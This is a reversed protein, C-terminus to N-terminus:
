KVSAEQSVRTYTSRSDNPSLTIRTLEVFWMSPGLESKALATPLWLVVDFDPLPADYAM